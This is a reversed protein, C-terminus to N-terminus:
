SLLMDAIISGSCTSCHPSIAVHFYMFAACRCLRFVTDPHMSGMAWVKGPWTARGQLLKGNRLVTSQCRSVPLIQSCLAQPGGDSCSKSYLRLKRNGLPVAHILPWPTAPAPWLMVARPGDVRVRVSSFLRKSCFSRSFPLHIRTCTMCDALLMRHLKMEVGACSVAKMCVAMSPNTPQYESWWVLLLQPDHYLFLHCSDTEMVPSLLSCPLLLSILSLTWVERWRM